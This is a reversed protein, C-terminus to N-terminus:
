QKRGVFQDITAGLFAIPVIAWPSTSGTAGTDYSVDLAVGGRVAASGIIPTLIGAIRGNLRVTEGLGEIGFRLEVGPIIHDRQLKPFLQMAALRVYASSSFAPLAGKVFFAGSDCSKGTVTADSSPLSQCREVKAKSADQSGEWGARLILTTASPLYLSGSVGLQVDYTTVSIKNALDDHYAKFQDLSAALDGSLSWHRSTDYGDYGVLGFAKLDFSMRAELSKQIAELLAADVIIALVAKDLKAPLAKAVDPKTRKLEAVIEQYRSEDMMDHLRAAARRRPALWILYDEMAHCTTERDEASSFAPSIMMNCQSSRNTSSACIAANTGKPFGFFRCTFTDLWEDPNACEESVRDPPTQHKCLKQVLENGSLPEGPAPSVYERVTSEAAPPLVDFAQLDKVISLLQKLREIRSDYGLQVQMSFAPLRGANLLAAERTNQDLPVSAMGYFFLGNPRLTHYRLNFHKQEDSLQFTSDTWPQVTLSATAPDAAGASGGHCLLLLSVVVPIRYRPKM